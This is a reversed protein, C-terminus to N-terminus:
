PANNPADATAMMPYPANDYEMRAALHAAPTNKEAFRRLRRRRRAFSARLCMETSVCVRVGRSFVSRTSADGWREERAQRM